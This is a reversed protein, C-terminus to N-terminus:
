SACTILCLLFCLRAVLYKKCLRNNCSLYSGCDNPISLFRSGDSFIMYNMNKEM